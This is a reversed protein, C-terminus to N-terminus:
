ILAFKQMLNTLINSVRFALKNGSKQKTANVIERVVTKYCDAKSKEKACSYLVRSFAKESYTQAQSELLSTFNENLPEIAIIGLELSSLVNQNNISSNQNRM